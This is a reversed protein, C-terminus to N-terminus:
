EHTKHKAKALHFNKIDAVEYALGSTFADIRDHQFSDRLM